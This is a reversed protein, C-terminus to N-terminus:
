DEFIKTDQASMGVMLQDITDKIQTPFNGFVFENEVMLKDITETPLQVKFPFNNEIPTM